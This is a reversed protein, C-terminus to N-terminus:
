QRDVYAGTWEATGVAGLLWPEGAVPPELFARGNGACELTTALSVAPRRM